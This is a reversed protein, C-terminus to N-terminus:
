PTLWMSMGVVGFLMQHRMRLPASGCATFYFFGDRRSGLYSGFSTKAGPLDSETMRRHCSLTRKPGSQLSLDSM